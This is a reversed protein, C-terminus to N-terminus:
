FATTELGNEVAAEAVAEVVDTVDSTSVSTGGGIIKYIGFGGLGMVPIAIAAVRQWPKLGRWFEKIVNTKTVEVKMTDDEENMVAETNVNVNENKM